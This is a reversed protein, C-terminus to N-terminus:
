IAEDGTEKFGKWGNLEGQRVHPQATSACCPFHNASPGEHWRPPSPHRGSLVRDTRWPLVCCVTSVSVYLLVFLSYIAILQTGKYKYLETSFRTFISPQTATCYYYKVRSLKNCSICTLPYIVSLSLLVEQANMHLVTDNITIFTWVKSQYWILWWVHQLFDWTM